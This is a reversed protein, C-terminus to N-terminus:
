NPVDSYECVVVLGGDKVYAAIGIYKLAPSLGIRLHGQYAYPANEEEKFIADLGYGGYQCCECNYGYFYANGYYCFCPLGDHEHNLREGNHIDDAEQKARLM